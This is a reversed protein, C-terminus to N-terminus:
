LFQWKKFTLENWSIFISYLLASVSNRVATFNDTIIESKPKSIPATKELSCVAVMQLADSSPPM